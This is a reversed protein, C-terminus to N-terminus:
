FPRTKTPTPSPTVTPTPVPDPQKQEAQNPTPTASVTPTVPDPEDMAAAKSASKERVEKEVKDTVDEFTTDMIDHEEDVTRMGNSLEPAHVRTWFAAARYMLMQQPMSPWSSGDKFFWGKDIAMRLSITESFLMNEQTQEVGKEWTYAYCTKNDVDTGDFTRKYKKKLDKGGNPNPEWVTEYYEVVGLKGDVGFKYKLKQFEGCTNVTSILFTSRWAPRGYIIDMNQCVAQMSTGIRSAIELAIMCNAIAKAEPVKDSVRYMEPLADSNAYMKCIRQVHNFQEVDLLNFSIPKNAQTALATTEM